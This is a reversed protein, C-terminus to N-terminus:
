RSLRICSSVYLVKKVQYSMRRVDSAKINNVELESVQLGQLQTFVDDIDLGLTSFESESPVDIGNHLEPAM